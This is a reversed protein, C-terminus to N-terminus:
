NAKTIELVSLRQTLQRIIYQRLTDEESLPEDSLYITEPKNIIATYANLLAVTLANDNPDIVTVENTTIYKMPNVLEVKGMTLTENM